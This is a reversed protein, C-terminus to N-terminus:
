KITFIIKDYKEDEDYKDFFVKKGCAISKGSINKLEFETRVRIKVYKGEKYNKFFDKYDLKNVPVIVQYIFEDKNISQILQFDSKEAKIRIKLGTSSYLSIYNVKLSEIESLNDVKFKLCFKLNKDSQEQCFINNCTAANTILYKYIELEVLEITDRTVNLSHKMTVNSNGENFELERENIHITIYLAAITLLSSISSIFISSSITLFHNNTKILSIAMGIISIVVLSALFCMGLKVLLIMIKRKKSKM